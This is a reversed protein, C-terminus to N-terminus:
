PDIRVITPEPLGPSGEYDVSGLYRQGAVLRHTRIAVAGPQGLVATTPAIVVMNSAAAAGLLWTHLKFPSTGAVNWANIVVTYPGPAPAVLSVTEAATAGTSIGVLTTGAFVCLDIDSGPNTDADFLAFRAYSTGAPV